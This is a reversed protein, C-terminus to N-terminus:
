LAPGCNGRYHNCPACLTRLNKVENTGGKSVPIVHDITLDHDVGCDRCRYRDRAFIRERKARSIKKRRTSRPGIPLVPPLDLVIPGPEM